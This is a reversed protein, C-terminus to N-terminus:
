HDFFITFPINIGKLLHRWYELASVIALLKKDYIPYNREAQNLARCFFAVPHIQKDETSSQSLIAGIAFNSSYTEVMFPIERNPYALVPTSSFKLKIEYFTKQSETTWIFKTNKRLLINLPHSLKVFGTIFRRYYNALGLFSQLEKPSTM